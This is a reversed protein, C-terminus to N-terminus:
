GIEMKDWGRLRSLHLLTQFNLHPFPTFLGDIPISWQCILFHINLTRNGKQWFTPFLRKDENKAVSGKSWFVGTLFEKEREGSFGDLSHTLQPPFSRKITKIPPAFHLCVTLKIGLNRDTDSIARTLSGQVDKVGHPRGPRRLHLKLWGLWSPARMRVFFKIKGFHSMM